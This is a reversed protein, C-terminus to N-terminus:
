SWSEGQCPPSNWRSGSLLIRAATASWARAYPLYGVLGRVTCASPANRVWGAANSEAFAGLQRVGVSGGERMPTVAQGSIRASM